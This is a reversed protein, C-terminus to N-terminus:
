QYVYGRGGCRECQRNEHHFRKIEGNPGLEDVVLVSQTSPCSVQKPGNADDTM